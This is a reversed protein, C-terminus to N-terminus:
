SVQMTLWELMYCINTNHAQSYFVRDIEENSGAIVEDFPYQIFEDAHELEQETPSHTLLAARSRQEIEQIYALNEKIIEPSTTKGHSCLVHRPQLALLQELTAFMSPVAAANEICPLPKEVADFALLLSLEPLWAAIHDRHHGPTPFLEITLDGDHIALGHKFTITPQVLEVNHFAPHRHQFDALEQRAEASKIRVLGQEHAIIPAAHKGRFYANGWTHDWDAHSNIVLVTRGAVKDQVMEMMMAVDEPSLLTDCVVLYSDTIVIYADVDLGEFTETANLVRRFVRVQSSTSMEPAFFVGESTTM